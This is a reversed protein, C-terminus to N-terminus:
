TSCFIEGIVKGSGLGEVVRRFGLGEDSIDEGEVKLKSKPAPVSMGDLDCRGLDELVAFSLFCCAFDLIPDSQLPRATLGNQETLIILIFISM